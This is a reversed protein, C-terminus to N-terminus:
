RSLPDSPNRARRRAGKGGDHAGEDEAHDKTAATGYVHELWEPDAEVGEAGQRLWPHLEAPLEPKWAVAALQNRQGPFLSEFARLAPLALMLAWYRWRNELSKLQGWPHVSGRFFQFRHQGYPAFCDITKEVEHPTWRYVFNPVPGNRVGGMRCENMYVAAREYDQGFGLRVATRTLLNDCPEVLLCGLRAVRYLEGLARHPSHCHHLGEHVIAFDFQDDQFDLNEADQHSWRFPAMDAPGLREDLNCLTVDLFGLDQLVERDLPGACVVVIRADTRLRGEDLLRGLVRSYLERAGPASTSRTQAPQSTTMGDPPAPAGRQEEPSQDVLVRM